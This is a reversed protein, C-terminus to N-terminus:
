MCVQVISTATVIADTAVCSSLISSYNLARFASFQDNSCCCCVCVALL